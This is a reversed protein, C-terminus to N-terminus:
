SKSGLNTLAIYNSSEFQLLSEYVGIARDYENDALYINALKIYNDSNNPNDVISKILNKIIQNKNEAEM